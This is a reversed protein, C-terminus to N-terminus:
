TRPPLGSILHVIRHGELRLGVGFRAVDKAAQRIFVIQGGPVRPPNVSSEPGIFLLSGTFSRGVSIRRGQGVEITEAAGEECNSVIPELLVSVSYLFLIESADDEVNFAVLAFYDVGPAADDHAIVVVHQAVSDTLGAHFGALAPHQRVHSPIGNTGPIATTM